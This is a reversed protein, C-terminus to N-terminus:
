CSTNRTYAVTTQTDRAKREGHDSLLDLKIAGIALLAGGLFCAKGKYILKGECRGVAMTGLLGAESLRM